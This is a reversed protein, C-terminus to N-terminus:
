TNSRYIGSWIGTYDTNNFPDGTYDPVITKRYLTVTVYYCPMICIAPLVFLVQQRPRPRPRPHNIWALVLALVAEESSARLRDSSLLQLMLPGPLRLLAESPWHTSAVHARAVRMAVQWCWAGRACM